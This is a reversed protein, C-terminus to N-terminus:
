IHFFEQHQVLWTQLQKALKQRYMDESILRVNKHSDTFYYLFYQIIPAWKATAYKTDLELRNFLYYNKRQNVFNHFTFFLDKFQSKTDIARINIKSLYSTAHEACNPCPLNKCIECIIHFLDNRIELFRDEKVKEALMHFLFWTPQGWRMKSPEKLTIPNEYPIKSVIPQNNVPTRNIVVTNSTQRPNFIVPQMPKGNNVLQRANTFIM